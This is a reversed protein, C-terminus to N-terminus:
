FSESLEQGIRHNECVAASLRDLNSLSFEDCTVRALDSIEDKTRVPALRKNTKFAYPKGNKDLRISLPLYGNKTALELDAPTLLIDYGEESAYVNGKVFKM